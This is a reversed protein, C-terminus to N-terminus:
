PTLEANRPARRHHTASRPPHDEAHRILGLVRHRVTPSESQKMARLFQRLSNPSLRKARRFAGSRRRYAISLPKRGERSKLAIVPGTVSTLVGTILTSFATVILAVGAYNFGGGEGGEGGEGGTVTPVWSLTPDSLAALLWAVVLIGIALLIEGIIVLAFGRRRSTREPM